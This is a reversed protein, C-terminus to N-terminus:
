AKEDLKTAGNLACTGPMEGEFASTSYTTVKGFSTLTEFVYFGLMQWM